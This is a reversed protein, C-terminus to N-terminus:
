RACRTNCRIRAIQARSLAHHRVIRGPREVAHRHEIEAAIEGTGIAARKEGIEARPDDLDFRRLAIHQALEGRGEGAVASEEKAGIAALARQRQIQFLGLPERYQM